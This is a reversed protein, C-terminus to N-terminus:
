AVTVVGSSAAAKLGDVGNYALYFAVEEAKTVPIQVSDGKALKIKQQTRYFQVFRDTNKVAQRVIVIVNAGGNEPLEGDDTIFDGDATLAYEFETYGADKAEELTMEVRPGTYAEKLVETEANNTITITAGETVKYTTAM